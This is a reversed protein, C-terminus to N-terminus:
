PSSRQEEITKLSTFHDGIAPISSIVEPIDDIAHLRNMLSSVVENINQNNHNCLVQQAALDIAQSEEQIQLVQNALTQLKEIITDISEELPCELVLNNGEEVVLKASVLNADSEEDYDKNPQFYINDGKFSYWLFDDGIEQNGLKLIGTIDEIKNLLDKGVTLKYNIRNEPAEEKSILTYHNSDGKSSNNNVFTFCM